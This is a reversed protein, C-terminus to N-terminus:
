SGLGLMMLGAIVLVVGIIQNAAPREGFLLVGGAVPILTFTASAAAVISVLGLEAGRAYAAIGVIDTLGVASALAVAAPSLRRMRVGDAGRTALIVASILVLSGIRSVTIPGLWGYRKALSGSAFAAIGFGVMAALAYPLGRLHRKAELEFRHLDASALIVGVLTLVVGALVVGGLSEGLFVVALIVTVSAFASAIPSVLVVPGLELGRYLAFYAVGAFCGSGLLLLVDHLPLTWSPSTILWLVGFGLLGVCQAVLVTARSGVRRSTIAALLDSCGWGLAAALGFIV